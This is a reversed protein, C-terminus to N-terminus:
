DEIQYCVGWAGAGLHAALVATVPGTFVEVPDYRRMLTRELREAFEPIGAHVVGLRYRSAGELVGDLSALVQEVAADRGRVRGAPVIHGEEDLTLLPRLDLLDGLWARGWSVRGSRLLQELNEVTFFLNSRDRIRELEEAVEELERGEDLLEVARVVMMGLGLSGSRSDVVRWGTSADLMRAATLGADHTGSLAASLYVALVERSGRDLVERYADLFDQPPPQSTTPVPTGEDELLTLLEDPGVEEVDRYSRDGVVLRLPVVEVGHERAWERSLDCSSDTVVAVERVAGSERTDEVRRSEVTGLEALRREVEAPDDAHVHVKVLESARLVILSTGLDEVAARVADSEPLGPGRVAIQTCYRGEGAESGAEAAAGEEGCSASAPLGDGSGLPRGEIYRVTAELINVFGMAGADVVDAKRLAPLAGRTKELAKQGAERLDRLWDYLDERRDARKRAEVAVERAVTLITGEAPSELAEGLSVGARYIADAIEGMGVRIREGLNSAFTLLFQSLIMGSNGRAGLVSAEAAKEAVVSVSDTELPRVADAVHRLTIALNTGTDGDAVPFVNIRNLEDRHASVYDAAALITRRLRPGDCYSIKVPRSGRGSADPAM